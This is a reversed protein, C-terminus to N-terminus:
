AVPFQGSGAGLMGGSVQLNAGAQNNVQLRVFHAPHAGQYNSLDNMSTKEPKRTVPADPANERELQKKYRGILSERSHKSLGEWPNPGLRDLVSGVNGSKLDALMDRGTKRRYESQALDMAALDQNKHSWDKPDFGLKRAEAAWTGPMFQYRGRAGISNVIGYSGSSETAAITDLFARGAPDISKTDVLNSIDPTGGAYYSRGTGRSRLSASGGPHAGAQEPTLEDAQATGGFLSWFNFKKGLEEFYHNLKDLSDSVPKFFANISKITKTFVDIYTKIGDVDTALAKAFDAINQANDATWKQLQTLITTELNKIEAVLKREADIQDKTLEYQSKRTRAEEIYAALTKENTNRLNILEEDSFLNGLGRAHAISLATRDSGQHMVAATRRIMDESLQSTDRGEFSGKMGLGARMAVYQPSTIDYRGQAANAMANDPNVFSSLYVEDATMGGISAGLGYSRRGRALGAEALKITAFTTAAGFATVSLGAIGLSKTFLGLLRVGTTGLLGALLSVEVNGATAGGATEAAAIARSGTATSRIVSATASAQWVRGQRILNRSFADLGSRATNWLGQASFLNSVHKELGSTWDKTSKQLNGMSKEIGRIGKTPDSSMSKWISEKQKWINETEKLKDAYANFSEAFADFDIKIEKFVQTAGDGEAM